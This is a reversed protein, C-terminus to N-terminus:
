NSGRYIQLCLEFTLFQGKLDKSNSEFKLDLQYDWRLIEGEQIEVEDQNLGRQM